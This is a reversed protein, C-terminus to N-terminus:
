HQNLLNLRLSLEFDGNTYNSIASTETTYFALIAFTPKNLGFGFTTSKSTHYIAQISLQNNALLLNAGADLINTYGKVGRFSLKPEISVANLAEGFSFKYSVSTFFLSRDVAYNRNDKNFTSRLNPLAVQFNFGNSTYSAGFDGDLYSQRENYRSVSLDDQDGVIENIPVRQTLIGASLGFNLQQHNQGLPIHYAYTAVARTTRLLGSQDNYVNVGFAARNLLYDASVIQTAPTGPIGSWQKRASLNVNLGNNIGAMAPNFLYQNQFYQSGLPNLQANASLFSFMSVLFITAAMSRKHCLFNIYYM